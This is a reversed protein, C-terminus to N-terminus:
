SAFFPDTVPLSGRIQNQAQCGSTCATAGASLEVGDEDLVMGMRGGPAIRWVTTTGDQYLRTAVQPSDKGRLSGGDGFNIRGTAPNKFYFIGPALTHTVTTDRGTVPEMQFVGGAACDKAQIKMSVAQGMRRIVAAQPSLQIVLEGADLTQGALDPVKSAFLPTRVGGTLDQPNPAGTLTYNAIAFTSVNLDFDVYRGRLQVTGDPAVDGAPITFDTHGSLVRGSSLIARFDGGQCAEATAARAPGAPLSTLCLALAASALGRRLAGPTPRPLSPM